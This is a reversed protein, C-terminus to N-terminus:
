LAAMDFVKVEGHLKTLVIEGHELRPMDGQMEHVLIWGETVCFEYVDAKRDEGDFEVGIWRTKDPPLYHPSKPDISVHDHM